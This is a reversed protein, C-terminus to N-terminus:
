ARDVFFAGACSQNNWGVFLQHNCLVGRTQGCLVVRFQWRFSATMKRSDDFAFAARKSAGRLIIMASISIM